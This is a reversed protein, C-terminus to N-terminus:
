WLRFADLAPVNCRAMPKSCVQEWDLCRSTTAQTRWVQQQQRTAQAICVFHRLGGGSPEFGPCRGKASRMWNMWISGGEHSMLSLSWAIATQFPLRSVCFSEDGTSYRYLLFLPRRHTRQM